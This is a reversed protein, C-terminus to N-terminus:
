RVSRLADVVETLAADLLNAYNDVATVAAPDAHISVTVTEGLGHVGHTLHMVTGLAPFGGTFRVRGGGLTLDAPGRNVSSVVTHGSLTAPVLDMPYTAIDRRLVPAPLVDTVRDQVALLPHAARVRRLALDAAIRDARRCPDTEAGHLEIGVDHYNNRAHPNREARAMSVQAALAAAPEGRSALYRTLAAGIATLVVVTVTRGPVHLDDRVLMRVVHAAPPPLRNLLTPPYDAVPPPVEGRETIEALERRAREAAIGRVVTRGLAVPLLALSGAEEAIGKVRYADVDIGLRDRGRTGTRDARVPTPEASDEAETFLARAITAARRGDALAHSLQLVAVLAPEDGGPAGLVGRFLHLRWPCRAADVGQSLLDGLAAVTNTWTAVTHGHDIIPTDGFEAPVWAPYAFRHERVRVSLDAIRRSREALAARLVEPPLGTDIFCYLLFLDNCTRRSLWYRTADQPTLADVGYVIDPSAM